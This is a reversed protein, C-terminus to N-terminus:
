DNTEMERHLPVMWFLRPGQSHFKLTKYKAPVGTGEKRRKSFSCVCVVLGGDLPPQNMRIGKTRNM